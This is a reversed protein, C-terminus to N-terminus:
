CSAWSPQLPSLSVEAVLRVGESGKLAACGSCEQGGRMGWVQLGGFNHIVCPVRGPNPSGGGKKKEVPLVM